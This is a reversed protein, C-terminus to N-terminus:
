GIRVVIKGRGHGTEMSRQADAVDDLAITREIHPRMTGEQALLAIRQWRPSGSKLAVPVARQRSTARAVLASLLTGAVAAADGGTNLYCGAETLVRRAAAFSSACAADAV